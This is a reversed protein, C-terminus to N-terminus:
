KKSRLRRMLLIAGAGGGILWFTAPEPTPATCSTQCFLPTSLALLCAGLQFLRRTMLHM